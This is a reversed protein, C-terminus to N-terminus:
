FENAFSGLLDALPLFLSLTYVFTVTGGIFLSAVVPFTYRLWLVQNKARRQYVDASMRLSRILEDRGQNRSIIWQLFAPFGAYRTRALLTVDGRRDVNAMKYAARKIKRSGTADAALELSEDLPIGQECM